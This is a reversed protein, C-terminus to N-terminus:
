SQMESFEQPQYPNFMRSIVVQEESKSPFNLHQLHVAQFKTRVYQFLSDSYQSPTALLKRNALRNAQWMLGHWTETDACM